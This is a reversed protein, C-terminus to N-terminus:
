RNNEFSHISSVKGSMAENYSCDICIVPAVSERNIEALRENAARKFIKGTLSTVQETLVTQFINICLFKWSFKSESSSSRIVISSSHDSSTHNKKKKPAQKRQQRIREYRLRKKASRPLRKPKTPETTSENEANHVLSSSVSSM